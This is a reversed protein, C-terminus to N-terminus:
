HFCVGNVISDIWTRVSSVRSYVSPYGLKGCDAGWSVTGVLVDGNPREVVVPGGYDGTCSTENVSGSSCLMSEDVNVEKMCKTNSILQVDQRMLEYAMTDVGGTDDWGMKTAEQGDYVDSDGASALAVPRFSSPKQLQLIAFDNSFGSTRPHNLIAIIKIQEGDQTGNVFHSGISAWRINAAICHTGVLLHTPSILSASCFSNGGPTARLGAVYTKTGRPVVSISGSSNTPTFHEQVDFLSTGVSGSSINNGPAIDSKPFSWNSPEEQSNSALAVGVSAAALIAIFRM